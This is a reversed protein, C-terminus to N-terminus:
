GQGGWYWNVSDKGSWVSHHCRKAQQVILCFTASKREGDSGTLAREKLVILCADVIGPREMSNRDNGRETARQIDEFEIM